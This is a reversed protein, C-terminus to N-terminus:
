MRAGYKKETVTGIYSTFGLLCSLLPMLFYTEKITINPNNNYKLYSAYYVNIGAWAFANGYIIQSFFGGIISFIGKLKNSFFM